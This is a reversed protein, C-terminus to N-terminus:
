FSNIKLFKRILDAKIVREGACNNGGTLCKVSAICGAPTRAYDKHGQILLGELAGQSNFVPSGSNGGYTDANTRFYVANVKNDLVIGDTYKLPLGSPYGLIYV